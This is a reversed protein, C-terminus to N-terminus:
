GLTTSLKGPTPEGEGFLGGRIRRKNGRAIGQNIKKRTEEQEMNLRKQEGELVASQRNAEGLAQDAQRSAEKRGKRAERAGLIAAGGGLLSGIAVATEAGM